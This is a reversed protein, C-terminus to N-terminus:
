VEKPLTQSRRADRASGRRWTGDTGLIDHPDYHAKYSMSPANAVHYGLYVYPLGMRLCEGLLSLVNFVGLARAQEAPDYYCYVASLAEPEFDVICVAVLRDGAHYLVEYTDAHSTYLFDLFEEWAGTMQGDHCAALYRAYLAHKEATPLPRAIEVRLDANRALCRRQSRNPRFERAPVRLAQCAQCGACMPRYVIPGLRRFNLDMLAHYLGPRGAPLQISVQNAIRGPLYPCAYPEGPELTERALLQEL